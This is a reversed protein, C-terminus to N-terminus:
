NRRLHLFIKLATKTEGHVEESSFGSTFYLDQGQSAVMSRAITAAKLAQNVAGAGIGTLSVDKGEALNKAASGAVSSPNSSGAVKLNIIDKDM